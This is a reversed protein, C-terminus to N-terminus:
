AVSGTITDPTSRPLPVTGSLSLDAAAGNLTIATVYNVGEVNGILDIAKNLRVVPENYWVNTGPDGFNKPRGWEAPSLWEALTEDVRAVLDAEDFGPYAAVTYTVNVTTYTPDAVTVTTNVLRYAAFLEVLRDKIPATLPEGDEDTAVVTIAREGNHLATARGVGPEDLAKLEFDRPTVLTEAQLQLRRALTNQYDIDDQPDAGGATPVEVVVSEVFSLASIPRIVEGVLDNGAAGIVSATVPVGTVTTTGAAVDQPEDVAFAWGDIDVQVGADIRHGADDTLNFTVTTTAPSGVEYPIGVLAEGYRRFVAPPVRSAADAANGAFPALAEIQIVEMDADNPTWDPWTVRLRDVAGDALSQSDRTIPVTVFEDAM